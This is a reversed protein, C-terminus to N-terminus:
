ILGRSIGKVDKVIWQWGPVLVHSALPTSVVWSKNSQEDLHGAACTEVNQGSRRQGNQTTHIASLIKFHSCFIYCRDGLIKMNTCDPDPPPPPWAGGLYTSLNSAIRGPFRDSSIVSSFPLVDYPSLESYRPSPLPKFYRLISRPVLSVSPVTQVVPFITEGLPFPSWFM